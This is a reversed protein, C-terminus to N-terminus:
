PKPNLTPNPAKLGRVRCIRGLGLYGSVSFGKLTQPIEM